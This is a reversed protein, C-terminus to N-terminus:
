CSRCRPSSACTKSSRRGRRAARRSPRNGPPVHGIHQVAHAAREVDVHAPAPRRRRRARRDDRMGICRRACLSCHSGSASRPSGCARREADVVADRLKRSIWKGRPALAAALVGVIEQLPAPQDQAADVGVAQGIAQAQGHAGFLGVRRPRRASAIEHPSIVLPPGMNSLTASIPTPSIPEDIAARWAARAPKGRVDGAIRRMRLRAGLAGPAPSRPNAAHRDRRRRHLVGIEHDQRAPPRTRRARPAFDRRM